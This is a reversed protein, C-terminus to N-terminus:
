PQHTPPPLTRLPEEEPLYINQPLLPQYGRFDAEVDPNKIVWPRLFVVLETKRFENDHFKFAEGVGEVDGLAPVQDTNRGAADQMLGGIVAIQGSGVKLVTETERVQVVPVQSTVGTLGQSAAIIAAGPDEVFERIRSITPRVNLTVTDVDNIQPTVNMIVGVAVTNVTSTITTDTSGDENEDEELELTFYVENDVVKLVATQNNLTM